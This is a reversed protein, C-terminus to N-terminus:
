LKYSLLATIVHEKYDYVPNNSDRDVLRLSPKFTLVKTMPVELGLNFTSRKEFREKGISPTINLYDREGYTYGLRARANTKFLRFPIQAKVSGQLGRYDYQPGKANEEEYRLGLAIYGKRRSFFRYADLSAMDTDADLNRSTAFSKRLYTYAARVFLNRGAFGSISPSAIHMDLYGDGDLLIHSFQYDAGLTVKGQRVALGASATHIELDYDTIDAYLTEDFDYGFRLTVARSDIPLARLNVSLLAAEDGKRASIDADDVSVNSDYQAGASITASFRDAASAQGSFSTLFLAALAPAAGQLAMHVPALSQKTAM